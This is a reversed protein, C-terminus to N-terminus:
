SALQQERLRRISQIARLMREHAPPNASHVVLAPLPHQWRGLGVEQELWSLVFYGTDEPGEPRVGLDHDLSLHTVEGTKLLEITEGATDTRVWGEPAERVDDLYVRV